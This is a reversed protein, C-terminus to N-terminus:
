GHVAVLGIWTPVSVNYVPATSQQQEVMNGLMDRTYLYFTDQATNFKVTVTSAKDAFVETLGNATTFGDAACLATKQQATLQTKSWGAKNLGSATYGQAGAKVVDELLITVEIDTVSTTTGKDTHDTTENKKVITGGVVSVGYSEPAHTDLAIREVKEGNTVVYAYWTDSTIFDGTLTGTTAQANPTTLTIPRNNTPKADGFTWTADTSVFAETITTGSITEGPQPAKLGLNFALTKATPAAGESPATTHTVSTQTIFPNGMNTEKFHAFYAITTANVALITGAPTVAAAGAADTQTWMTFKSSNISVPIPVDAVLLTVQKTAASPDFNNTYTGDAKLQPISVDVKKTATDNLGGIAEDATAVSFSIKQQWEDPVKDKNTDPLWQATLETDTTITFKGNVPFYTKNLEAAAGATVKWGAFAYDKTPVFIDPCKQVVVEKDLPKNTDVIDTGAVAVSNATGPKYTVDATLQWNPVLEIEKTNGLMDQMYLYLNPLTKAKAANVTFSYTKESVGDTYVETNNFTWPGKLAPLPNYAGTPFKATLDPETVGAVSTESWGIRYINSPAYPAVGTNFDKVPINVTLQRNDGTGTGRIAIPKRNAALVDPAHVDIMGTAFAEAGAQGAYTLVYYTENPDVNMTLRSYFHTHFGDGIGDTVKNQQTSDFATTTATYGATMNASSKDAKLMFADYQAKTLVYLKKVADGDNNNDATKYNLSDFYLTKATIGSRESDNMDIWALRTAPNNPLGYEIVHKPNQETSSKIAMSASVFKTEAPRATDFVILNDGEARKNIDKIDTILTGTNTYTGKVILPNTAAAKSVFITSNNGATLNNIQMTGTGQLDLVTNPALMLNGDCGATYDGWLNKRIVLDKNVNLMDFDWIDDVATPANINVTTTGVAHTGAIFGITGGNIDITSAGTVDQTGIVALDKKTTRVDSYTGSNVVIKSSPARGLTYTGGYAEFATNDMRVSGPQGNAAGNAGFTVASGCAAVVKISNGFKFSEFIIGENKNPDANQLPSSNAPLELAKNGQIDVKTLKNMDSESLLEPKKQDISSFAITKVGAVNFARLKAIDDKGSAALVGNVDHTGLTYDKFFNVTYKGGSPAPYKEMDALADYLTIYDTYRMQNAGSASNQPAPYVRISGQPDLFVFGQGALPADNNGKVISSSISSHKTYDAPIAEAKNAYQLLKTGTQPAVGPVLGINTFRMEATNGRVSTNRTENILLGAITPTGNVLLTAGDAKAGSAEKTMLKGVGIKTQPKELSLVSNASRFWIEGKPIGTGDSYSYFSGSNGKFNVKADKVVLATWNYLKSKIETNCGDEFFVRTIRPVGAGVSSEPIGFGCFMDIAKASFISVDSSYNKDASIILPGEPRINSAALTGFTCNPADINVKLIKNIRPTKTIHQTANTTHLPAVKPFYEFVTGDPNEINITTPGYSVANGYAQGIVLSGNLNF